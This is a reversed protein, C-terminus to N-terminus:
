WKFIKKKLGPLLNWFKQFYVKSIMLFYRASSFKIKKRVNGHCVEEIFEYYKGVTESLGNVAINKQYFEYNAVVKEIKEIVDAQDSFFEGGQRIIEPYGGDNLAVAPLGCSLAEILSNSCPEKQSATIFIDNEKLKAALSRSDLPTLKKINKFDIPSNGIFIMEYRNFDLNEDLFKYVPFGKRPNASWCSVILKIKRDLSFIKRGINNFINSDSANIIVTEFNNKKMGLQYNEERSWCSQFVTGDALLKNAEYIAKDVEIGTGRVLSIPGDVRHIIKKGQSKLKRLRKFLYEERSPFSNFLIVDALEPNEEYVGRRIFEGRLAKLFQNGGGWPGDKLKQLISIRMKNPM